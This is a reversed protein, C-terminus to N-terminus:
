APIAVMELPPVMAGSTGGAKLTALGGTISFHQMTASYTINPTLGTVVFNRRVSRKQGSVGVDAAIVPTNGVGGNIVLRWFITDTGTWEYHASIDYIITGTPGAKCSIIANSADVNAAGTTTAASLATSPNHVKAVASPPVSDFVFRSTKLEDLLTAGKFKWPKADLPSTDGWLATFGGFKATNAGTNCYHECMIVTSTTDAFAFPTVSVATCFAAIEANTLTMISGDPLRCYAKGAPLDLVADVRWRAVGDAPPNVFTQSKVNLLHGVGDCVFWKATGIAGTGAVISMHIWSRPVAQGSGEYIGGWAAITQNGNGDDSGSPMTWEAGVRTVPGSLTAQYYDALSGSGAAALNYVVLRGDVIQTRRGGANFTYDVVQGTDLVSPPLGDAKTTFDIYATQSLANVDNRIGVASKGQDIDAM